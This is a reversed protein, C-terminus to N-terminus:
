RLRAKPAWRARRRRAAWVGWLLEVGILGCTPEPPECDPRSCELVCIRGDNVTILGDGNSDRPDDPGSAPEGRAAFIADVDNRDVDADGDVDCLRVPPPPECADGVGDDNSDAQDPNYDDPCNDSDDAVADRDSDPAERVDASFSGGALDEWELRWGLAACPDGPTETAFAVTDSSTTIAAPVVSTFSGDSPDDPHGFFAVGDSVAVSPPPDLITARVNYAFGHGENGLDVRWLGSGPATESCALVSLEAAIVLEPEPVVHEVFNTDIRTPPEANPFLITGVNRVRTGPLADARVAIEFGVQRPTAPPVLPDTWVLTRTAPDYVGGDHVVLTSDDLDEDLVDIVKVDIADADGVNEYHLIYTMGLGAETYGYGEITVGPISDKYNPDRPVCGPVGVDCASLSLVANPNSFLSADCCAAPVTVGGCEGRPVTCGHDPAPGCYRLDGREDRVLGSGLVGSCLPNTDGGPLPLLTPRCSCPSDQCDIRGNCDNDILDNCDEAVGSVADKDFGLSHVSLNDSLDPDAAASSALAVNVLKDECSFAGRDAPSTADIDISIADGSALDPELLSYVDSPGDFAGVGAGDHSADAFIGSPMFDSVLVDAAPDPGDNAVDVRYRIPDDNLVVLLDNAETKGISVDAEDSPPPGAPVFVLETLVFLAAPQLIEVSGVNGIDAAGFFSPNAPTAPCPFGGNCSIATAEQNGGAGAYTAGPCGDLEYGRLGIASVPPNVTLSVGEGLGFGWSFIGDGGTTDLAEGSLSEFRFTVGDATFEYALDGVALPAGTLANAPRAPAGLSVAASGTFAPDGVPDCVERAHAPMTQAVAAWVIVASLIPTTARTM